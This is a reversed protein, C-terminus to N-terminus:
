LSFVDDLFDYEIQNALARNNVACHLEGGEKEMILRERKSGTLREYFAHSDSLMSGEGEGRINLLPQTIKDELGWLDFERLYDLYDSLPRDLMGYRERVDGLLLRAMPSANDILSDLDTRDAYPEDPDLGILSMIHPVFSPTLCSAVVAKIRKEGSAARPAFLGGMSYGSLALYDPNVDARSLAYDVIHGFQVDIDPRFTLDPDSYYAGRQGPIEVLLVNYGRRLAARGSMLYHEEATTDGGPLIISTARPENTQSAKIFYGPLTKGNDFPIDVAELPVGALHLSSRFCDRQKRWFAIRNGDGRELFFGASRWYTSARLYSEAASITHGGSEAEAAADEIRTATEEWATGWGRLDGDKVQAVTAFCEGIAAGGADATGLILALQFDFNSAFRGPMGATTRFVTDEKRFRTNKITAM